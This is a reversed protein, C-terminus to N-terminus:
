GLLIPGNRQQWPLLALYHNTQMAIFCGSFVGDGYRPFSDTFFLLEISLVNKNTTVSLERPKKIEQPGDFGLM